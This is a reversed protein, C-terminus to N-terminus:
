EEDDSKTHDDSPEEKKKDLGLMHEYWAIEQLISVNRTPLDNLGHYM